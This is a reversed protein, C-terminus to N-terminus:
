QDGSKGMSGIILGEIDRGYGVIKALTDGLKLKTVIEEILLSQNEACDIAVALFANARLQLFALKSCIQADHISLQVELGDILSEPLNDIISETVFLKSCIQADFQSFDVQITDLASNVRSNHRALQRNVLDVCALIENLLFLEAQNCFVTHASKNDKADRFMVDCSKLVHLIHEADAVSIKVMDSANSLSECRILSISSLACFIAILFHARVLRLM